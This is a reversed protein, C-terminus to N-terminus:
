PNTLIPTTPSPIPSKEPSSDANLFKDIETFSAITRRENIGGRMLPQETVKLSVLQEIIAKEQGRDESKLTLLINKSNCVDNPHSIYCLVSNSGIKGHTLKLTSLRGGQEAVAKSLRSSVIECRKKPPYNDGFSTDKWIILPPTARKDRKAITAYNEGQQICSFVTVDKKTQASSPAIGMGITSAFIISISCGFIASKLINIM